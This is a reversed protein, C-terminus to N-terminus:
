QKLTGGPVICFFGVVRDGGGMMVCWVWGGWGGEVDRIGWETQVAHYTLVVYM